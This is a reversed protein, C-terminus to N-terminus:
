SYPGIGYTTEIKQIRAKIDAIMGDLMDAAQGQQKERLGEQIEWDLYEAILAQTVQRPTPLRVGAQAETFVKSAAVHKEVTRFDPVVVKAM